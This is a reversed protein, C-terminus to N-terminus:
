VVRKAAEDLKFTAEKSMDAAQAIETINASVTRVGDAATQMNSSIDATVASQEEVATSIGTSIENLQDIVRQIEDITSVAVRTNGQVADIQRSIQETAKATQSALSKVESAVVAFGKGAEGARAAEITANLALLNTQEAIDTILRLVEGISLAAGELEAIVSQAQSSKEVASSSVSAAEAVQRSIEAISSALEEAGSAVAQVNESAGETAGASENALQSSQVAAAAIESIQVAMEALVSKRYERAEVMATVDTAFKVVKYVKGDEDLIPSYTAQIFIPKGSKTIRKFEATKAEGSALDAWFQKYAQAKRDEEPVFLSHHGGKIEDLQYGLANLFNDNADLIDGTPTFEIVAQSRRIAEVQGNRDRDQLSKKTTDTALKVVKVVKGGAGRVPTYTAQIYVFAGSKAVRRFERTQAQGARLADWFQRYGESEREVPTVFLSHQQGVIEDLRYGMVSLFNENATLVKGQPDFEIVAQSAHIADILAQAGQGWGSFMDGGSAGRERSSLHFLM